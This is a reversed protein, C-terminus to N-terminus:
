PSLGAGQVSKHWCTGASYVRGTEDALFDSAAKPEIYDFSFAMWHLELPNMSSEVELGIGHASVGILRCVLDFYVEDLRLVVRLRSPEEMWKELLLFTEEDSIMDDGIKEFSRGRGFHAIM